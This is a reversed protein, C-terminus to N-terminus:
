GGDLRDLAERVARVLAEPQYPKALWALPRAAEARMRTRADNHATAFISRVGLERALDVAADVGDRKGTLRIDMIALDPRDTRALQVAEEASGAIGTVVFGADLLATEIMLSVLHDDEVVLIRRPLDAQASMGGREPALVPGPSDPRRRSQVSMDTIRVGLRENM